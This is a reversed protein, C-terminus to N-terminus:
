SRAPPAPRHPAHSSLSGQRSSHPACALTERLITEMVVAQQAREFHAEVYRRANQGHRRRLAPDRQYGLIALALAEPDAPPVPTGADAAEIVERIAGEIALVTPRGAAMYDFVKNPYTTTFARIAELIAVCVDAAAIAAPMREKSMAPLFLVNDLGLARARQVLWPKDMGDGILVFAIHSEDRLRQAAELLTGLGNALGHAGAYLVVLKDSVGWEQRLPEGRETPDFQSTDVGNPVLRLKEDPVGSARLHPLFGPSNLVIRDAARYLLCELWRALFILAPHRLVGLDVAFLPWLDRVEFLFPVRNVRALALAAVAQFLPPSTGWVIDVQRARLGALFSSAAFSLYAPLRKWHGRQLPGRASCRWVDIGVPLGQAPVVSGRKDTLPEGTLYVVQSALITVRHGRSALYRSLEYHRTGGPEWPLAFAQHIILIRM